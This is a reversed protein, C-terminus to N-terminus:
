VNLGTMKLDPDKPCDSLYQNTRIYFLSCGKEAFATSIQIQIGNTSLSIWSSDTLNLWYM